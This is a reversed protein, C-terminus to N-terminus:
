LLNATKFFATYYIYFIFLCFWAAILSNFPYFLLCKDQIVRVKPVYCYLLRHKEDVLLHDFMERYKTVNPQHKFDQMYNSCMKQLHEQRDLYVMRTLLIQNSDNSFLHRYVLPEFTQDAYCYNHNM